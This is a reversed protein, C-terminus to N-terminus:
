WPATPSISTSTPFASPTARRLRRGLRRSLFSRSLVGRPTPRERWPAGTRRCSETARTFCALGDIHGDTVDGEALDGPLWIV